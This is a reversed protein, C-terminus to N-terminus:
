PLNLRRDPHLGGPTPQTAVSGKEEQGMLLSWGSALMYIGMVIMVIASGSVPWRTALVVCVGVCVLGGLLSGIWDAGAVRGRWAAVLKSPGNILVLGVLLVALGRIVLQPKAMLLLGAGVTLGGSLYASRRRVEDPANFTELMELVGCLVLLVGVLLLG